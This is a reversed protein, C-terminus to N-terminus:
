TSTSRLMGSSDSSIRNTNPSGSMPSVNESNTEAVTQRARNPAANTQSAIRPPMLATGTPCASAALARPNVNM